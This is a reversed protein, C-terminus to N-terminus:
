DKTKDGDTNEDMDTVIISFEGETLTQPLQYAVYSAQAELRLGVGPVFTVPGSPTGVTKGNILPDYLENGVLYGTNLPAVFSWGSKM